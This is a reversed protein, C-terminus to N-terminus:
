KGSHTSPCNESALMAATRHIMGRESIFASINDSRPKNPIVLDDPGPTKTTRALMADGAQNCSRRDLM